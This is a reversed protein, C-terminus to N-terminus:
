YTVRREKSTRLDTVMVSVVKTAALRSSDEGYVQSFYGLKRALAKRAEDVYRTCIKRQFMELEDYDRKTMFGRWEFPGGGDYDLVVAIEYRETSSVASASLRQVLDMVMTRAEPSVLAAVAVLAVVAVIVRKTTVHRRVM